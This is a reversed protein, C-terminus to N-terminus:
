SVDDAYRQFLDSLTRRDTDLKEFKSMEVERERAWYHARKATPFVKQDRINNVCVLARVHGNKRKPFSAM